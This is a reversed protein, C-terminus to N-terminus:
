CPQCSCSKASKIDHDKPVLKNSSDLCFLEVRITNTDLPACCSCTQVMTTGSSSPVSYSLCTGTCKKVPVNHRTQCTPVVVDITTDEAKCEVNDLARKKLSRSQIGIFLLLIFFLIYKTNVVNLNM